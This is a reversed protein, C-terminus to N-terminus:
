DSGIYWIKQGKFKDPIKDKPCMITFNQFFTGQPADIPSELFEYVPSGQLHVKIIHSIESRKTEIIREIQQKRKENTTQFLFELHAREYPAMYSDVNKLTNTKANNFEEDSFQDLLIFSFVNEIESFSSSIDHVDPNIISMIGTFYSYDVLYNPFRETILKSILLIVPSDVHSSPITKISFCIAQQPGNLFEKLSRPAFAYEFKPSNIKQIGQYFDYLADYNTDRDESSFLISLNDRNLLSKAVNKCSQLLKPLEPLASIVNYSIVGNMLNSMQLMPSLATGSHIKLINMLNQYFMSDKEIYYEQLIEEFVQIPSEHILHSETFIASLLDTVKYIDKTMLSAQIIMGVKVKDIHQPDHEIYPKMNFEHCYNQLKLSFNMAEMGRAGIRELMHVTLPLYVIDDEIIKSAISKITISTMGNLNQKSYYINDSLRELKYEEFNTEFHYNPTFVEKKDNLKSEKLEVPPIEFFEPEKETGKVILLCKEEFYKKVLKSLEGQSIDKKVKQFINSIELCAFVDRNNNWFQSILLPFMMDQFPMKRISLEIYQLIPTLSMLDHKMNQVDKVKENILKEFTNMEIEGRYMLSFNSQNLFSDYGSTEKILNSNPFSSLPSLSLQTIYKGFISFLTTEYSNSTNNGLWSVGFYNSKFPSELELKKSEIKPQLTISPFEKKIFQSFISDIQEFYEKKFGTTMILCNSPHYFESHYKMLKELTIKGLDYQNGHFYNPYVQSYIMKYLERKFYFTEEREMMNLEQFLTGDLNGDENFLNKEFNFTPFFIRKLVYQIVNELDTENKCNMTIITHSPYNLCQFSTLYTKPLVDHEISQLMKSLLLPVHGNENRPTKFTLTFSPCIENSQFKLYESGIDNKYQKLNFNFDKLVKEKEIKWSYLRTFKKNSLFFRKM